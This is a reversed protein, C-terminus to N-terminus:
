FRGGCTRRSISMKNKDTNGCVPCKWFHKGKGDTEIKIEGDWGCAACFDSKINLEAYMINEYIFQIVSIVAEINGTLDACEIYSIAGGTSLAQFQSEFRLKEFPDIPETVKVHYSNTIYQKDSVDEIVGFRERLAKAFKYTTSEIPSGYISFGLNLQENWEDCKKNMYKMIEIGCDRGVDSTLKERTLVRVAEWLGAYGLSITSYGGVLLDDITEGSKKRSIGGHMWHIPSVDARTGVLRNYRAILAEHCLELYEDFIKYFDENREKALLAIYPINITCVGKNFRGYYKHNGSPDVNLFSRCGWQTRHSESSRMRSM